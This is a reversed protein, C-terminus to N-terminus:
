KPIILCIYERETQLIKVLSNKLTKSQSKWQVLEISQVQDVWDFKVTKWHEFGSIRPDTENEAGKSKRLLIEAQGRVSDQM